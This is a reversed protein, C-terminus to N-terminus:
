SARMDPVLSFFQAYHFTRGNSQDRLFTKPETYWSRSHHAFLGIMKCYWIINSVLYLSLSMISLQWDRDEGQSSSRSLGSSCTSCTSQYTHANHSRVKLGPNPVLQHQIFCPDHNIYLIFSPYSISKEWIMQMSHDYKEFKLQVKSNNIM